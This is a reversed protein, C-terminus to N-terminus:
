LSTKFLLSIIPTIKRMFLPPSNIYGRGEREGKKKAMKLMMPVVAASHDHKPNNVGKSSHFWTSRAMPLGLMMALALRSEQAM